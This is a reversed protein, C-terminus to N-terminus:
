TVQCTEMSIIFTQSSVIPVLTLGEGGKKGELKKSIQDSFNQYLNVLM